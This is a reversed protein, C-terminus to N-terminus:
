GVDPAVHGADATKATEVAPAPSSGLKPLEAGFAAGSLLMALPFLAALAIDLVLHKRNRALVGDLRDHKMMM